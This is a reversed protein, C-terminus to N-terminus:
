QSASPKTRDSMDALRLSQWIAPKDAAAHCSARSGCRAFKGVWWADLRALPYAAILALVVFLAFTPPAVAASGFRDALSSHIPVVLGCLIPLHALYVPFSLRGLLSASPGDLRKRVPDYFLVVVVIAVL